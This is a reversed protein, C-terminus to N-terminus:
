LGCILWLWHTSSKVQWGLELQVTPLLRQRKGEFCLEPFVPPGSKWAGKNPLPMAFINLPCTLLSFPLAPCSPFSYLEVVHPKRFWPHKNSILKSSPCQFSLREIIRSLFVSSVAFERCSFHPGEFVLYLLRCCLDSLIWSQDPPFESHFSSKPFHGNCSM